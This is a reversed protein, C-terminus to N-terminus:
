LFKVMYTGELQYGLKRYYERVGIGAIVALKKYGGKKALDEAKAMMQRGLGIHQSVEQGRGSITVQEGYTHVERVLAAGELEKIFHKKGQLSYSSFRLRLLSCLKDQKVQDFSIFFEQGNSAEFEKVRLELEDFNVKVAKIERSRIDRSEIGLKKMKEEVVQRLNSTKCGSVITNAPIDRYMRTVRVYEPWVKTMEVMLDILTQNDYSQYLGKKYIGELQSWPVVMCPYVKMWDPRYAPNEFLDKMDALDIEPTAGLLNPMMHVNIKYAADRILQIARKTEAIGHGRRNMELIQDNLSQVGIEIKTCGLRRLRRLEEPTIHDPRTEFSLGICRNAAKENILQAAELSRAKPAPYNLANFIGRTFDAQYRKPYFSFTGGSVIVDVKDTYHGTKKLSDLRNRTQKYADFNNLIARMMAPENSLYSKPMAPETPCFICKGPCPYAKTLVTINAIGSQSRVARKRLIKLFDRNELMVGEEVMQRYVRILEVNSASPIKFKTSFDNKLDQLEQQTSLGSNFAKLLMQKHVNTLWQQYQLPSNAQNPVFLTTM